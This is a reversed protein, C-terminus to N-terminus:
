ITQYWAIGGPLERLEAAAFELHIVRRHAPTQAPSSAHLLLPHFALIGGREVLCDVPEAKAKWTDIKKTSLRGERHSGPLVRVPGNVHDCADLHVRVAIMRALVTEPAQVHPIGGKTTWPGFGAVDRRECVVITLDQHWVVKWNADPTKDFLIGRVAFCCPGLAATAVARVPASQALAQVVPLDLLGRVGGRGPSTATLPALDTILADLGSPAM